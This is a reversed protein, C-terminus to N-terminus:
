DRLDPDNALLAMWQAHKESGASFIGATEGHGTRINHRWKSPDDSQAGHGFVAVKWKAGEGYGENNPKELDTIWLRHPNELDVLVKGPNMNWLGVKKLVAYLQAPDINGIVTSQEAEPLSGLAVVREPLAEQVVVYNRDDLGDPKGEMHLVFTGPARLISGSERSLLRHYALASVSQFRRMTKARELIAVSGGFEAVVGSRYPDQGLTSLAERVVNSFGAMKVVGRNDALPLVVNSGSKNQGLRPVLDAPVESGLSIFFGCLDGNDECWDAVAAQLPVPMEPSGALLEEPGVFETQMGLAVNSVLVMTLLLSKHMNGGEFIQELNKLYYHWLTYESSTTKDFQCLLFYSIYPLKQCM